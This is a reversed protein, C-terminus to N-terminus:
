KPTKQGRQCPHKKHATATGAALTPTTTPGPPTTHPSRGGPKTQADRKRVRLGSPRFPPPTGYAALPASLTRGTGQFFVLKEVWFASHPIAKDTALEREKLWETYARLEPITHVPM